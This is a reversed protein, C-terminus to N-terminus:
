LGWRRCNRNEDQPPTRSLLERMVPDFMRCATQRHREIVDLEPSMQHVALLRSALELRDHGRVIEDLGQPEVGEIRYIRYRLNFSDPELDRLSLFCRMADPDGSDIREGVEGRAMNDNCAEGDPAYPSTRAEPPTPTVEESTGGCASVTFSLVLAVFLLPHTM